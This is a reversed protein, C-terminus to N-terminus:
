LAWSIERVVQNAEPHKRSSVAGGALDLVFDDKEYEQRILGYASEKIFKDIVGSKISKDLGGHEKMANDGIEDSSVYRLNLKKAVVLGAAEATREDTPFFLDLTIVGDGLWQVEPKM